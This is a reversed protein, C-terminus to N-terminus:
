EDGIRKKVEAIIAEFEPDGQFPEFFFETFIWDRAFGREVAERLYELAPARRGQAALTCAHIYLTVLTEPHDEGFVRRKLGLTELSLSEAEDYRGQRLYLDTLGDATRMTEPHDEGLMRRMTNLAELRLTESKDYHQQDSYISALNSMCVLTAKHDQGYQRRMVALAESYLKEAEDHRRLDWYVAALNNMSALTRPHDDGLVRRRRSLTDSHMSEALDLRSERYHLTALDNMTFLTDPHDEGLVSRNIEIAEELLPRAQDYLGLTIYVWGMTGLMRARLRPQDRLEQGIRETGKDLIERATIENGRTESPDSVEFLGVLFQSVQEAAAAEQHAQAEAQHAQSEARTARVLGYTAGAFGVVLALFVVGAATVGLRHRRVFKGMRYVTSPPGATVPEHRLHRGIDAALENPSGYRRTRDKELAKM